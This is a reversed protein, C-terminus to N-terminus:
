DLHFKASNMAAVETLTIVSVCVGGLFMGGHMVKFMLHHHFAPLCPNAVCVCVCACLLGAHNKYPSSPTITPPKLPSPAPPPCKEENRPSERNFHAQLIAKHFTALPEAPVNPPFCRPPRRKM